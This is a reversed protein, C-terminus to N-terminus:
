YLPIEKLKKDLIRILKPDYPFWYRPPIDLCIIKEEDLGYEKKLIDVMYQEMVIIKDAWEVKEKNIENKPVFPLYKKTFYLVDELRNRKIKRTFFGTSEIKLDLNEKKSRRKLLHEAAVSRAFNLECVVLVTKM